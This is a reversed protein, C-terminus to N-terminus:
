PKFEGTKITNAITVAREKVEKAYQSNLCEAAATYFDKRKMAKLMKKFQMLGYVGMNFAMDILAYQREADLDKFFVIYKKLSLYTRKIDNCLLYTAACQTIGHKWDGVVKEEEPTLPNTDLCRGYGITLKGKTCRYPQLRLGEHKKLRQSVTYVNIM